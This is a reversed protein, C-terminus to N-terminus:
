LCLSWKSWSILFSKKKAFFWFRIAWWTREPIYKGAFSHSYSNSSPVTEKLKLYKCVSFSREIGIDVGSSPSSTVGLRIIAPTYPFVEVCLDFSDSLIILCFGSEADSTVPFLIKLTATWSIPTCFILNGVKSERFGNGLLFNDFFVKENSLQSYIIHISKMEKM